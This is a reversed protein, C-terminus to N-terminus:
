FDLIGLYIFESIDLFIFHRFGARKYRAQTFVLIGLIAKM